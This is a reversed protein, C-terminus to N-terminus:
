LYVSIIGWFTVQLLPAWIEEGYIEIINPAQVM